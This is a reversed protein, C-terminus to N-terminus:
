NLRSIAREVLVKLEETKQLDTVVAMAQQGRGLIAQCADALQDSLIDVLVVSVGVAALGEAIARGIGRAGGSVLAIKGSLDLKLLRKVM